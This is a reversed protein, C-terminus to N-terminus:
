DLLTVTIEKKLRRDFEMEVNRLGARFRMRVDVTTELEPLRTDVPFSGAYKATLGSEEVRFGRPLPPRFQKADFSGTLRYCEVGKVKVVGALKTEGKFRDVFIVIDDKRFDEIAKAKNVPWKDGVKRKEKSGFIDDDTVDGENDLSIVQQLADLEIGEALPKGEEQGELAEAFVVERDKLSAILRTGKPLGEFKFGEETIMFKEVVIVVKKKGGGKTTKLVTVVGAFDTDFAEKEKESRAGVHREIVLQMSAKVALRFKQGAKSVRHMHIAFARAKGSATISLVLFLVCFRIMFSGMAKNLCFAKPNDRILESWYIWSPM